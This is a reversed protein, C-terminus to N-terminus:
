FTHRVGAAFVDSKLDPTAAQTQNSSNLGLYLNTRKSVAYLASLGLGKRKVETPLGTDKSTAYGASLTLASSVPVDLGFQYERTRPTLALDKVNGYAALLKVVGLDYSANAQTFKTTNAVAGNAKETQYALSAALPGGEYSARLSIVNGASTRTTKNEGFSYM